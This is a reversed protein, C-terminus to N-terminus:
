AQGKLTVCRLIISCRFLTSLPSTVEVGVFDNQNLHRSWTTPHPLVNEAFYANTMTPPDTGNIINAPDVIPTQAQAQAYSIRYVKFAISGQQDSTIAWSYIYLWEPMQLQLKFGPAIASGGGSICYEVDIPKDIRKWGITPGLNVLSIQPIRGGQDLDVNAAM